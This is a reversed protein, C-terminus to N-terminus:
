KNVVSLCKFIFTTAVAIADKQEKSATLGFREKEFDNLLRILLRRSKETLIGHENEDLINAANKEIM